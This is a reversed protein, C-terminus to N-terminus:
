HEHHHGCGCDHDHEHHHEHHHEHEHDHGCGCDHDHDHHHEHEHHDHGCGCGCGHEHDHHHHDCNEESAAELTGALYARVADDADGSVGSCIEIDADDLAIRAGMGIGGCILLEVGLNELFEALAGHGSGDTGVVTAAWVKGDEIEFIKFEETRGFHQNIEGEAYTVAIRM